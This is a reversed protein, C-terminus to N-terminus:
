NLQYYLYTKVATVEENKCNIKIHNIWTMVSKENGISDVLKDADEVKFLNLFQIAMEKNNSKPLICEIGFDYGQNEKIVLSLVYSEAFNDILEFKSQFQKYDLIWGIAELYKVVEGISKFDSVGIRFGTENRGQLLGFGFVHLNQGACELCKLLSSDIYDTWTGHLIIAANKFINLLVAPPLSLRSFALYSWPLIPKDLDQIDYVIYINELIGSIMQSEDAWSDFLKHLYDHQEQAVFPHLLLHENFRKQVCLMLDVRKKQPKSYFEIIGHNLSPLKKYLSKIKMRHDRDFLDVHIREFVRTLIDEKPKNM